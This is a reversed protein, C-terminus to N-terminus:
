AILHRVFDNMNGGSARVAAEVSARHCVYSFILSNGVTTVTWLEGSRVTHDIFEHVENHPDYYSNDLFDELAATYQFSEQQIWRKKLQTPSLRATTDDPLPEPETAKLDIADLFTKLELTREYANRGDDSYGNDVIIGCEEKMTDLLRKIQRPGSGPVYQGSRLMDKACEFMFKAWHRTTMLNVGPVKCENSFMTLEALQEGM